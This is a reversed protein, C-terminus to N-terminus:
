GALYVLREKTHNEGVEPESLEHAAAEVPSTFLDLRNTSASTATTTKTTAKENCKRDEGRLCCLWQVCSWFASFYDRRFLQSGTSRNDLKATIKIVSEPSATSM